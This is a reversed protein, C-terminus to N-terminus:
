DRALLSAHLMALATVQVGEGEPATFVKGGATDQLEVSDAMAQLELGDTLTNPM